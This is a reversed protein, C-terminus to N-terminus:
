KGATDLSIVPVSYRGKTSALYLEFPSIIYHIVIFSFLLDEGGRGGVCVGPYATKFAQCVTRLANVHM